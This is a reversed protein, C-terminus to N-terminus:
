PRGPVARAASTSLIRYGTQRPFTSRSKLWIQDWPFFLRGQTFNQPDGKVQDSAPGAMPVKPEPIPTAAAPEAIVPREEAVGAERAAKVRLAGDINGAQTLERQYQDLAQDRAARLPKVKEDRAAELKGLLDRYTAYFGLLKEPRVVPPAEAAIEAVTPVGQGSGLRDISRRWQLVEDLEGAKSAADQERQLAASIQGNLKEVAEAHPKTVEAEYRQHYAADIGAIRNTIADAPVAARGPMETATPRVSTVAEAPPSKTTEVPEIWAMRAVQKDAYVDLDIAGRITSLKEQLAKAGEQTDDAAWSTWTGDERLAAVIRGGGRIATIRPLDDRAEVRDSDGWDKVEGNETLGVFGNVVNDIEVFRDRDVLTKRVGTQNCFLITGDRRLFTVGCNSAVIKVVDGLAERTPQYTDPSEDPLINWIRIDGNKFKAAAFRHQADFLEVRELEGVRNRIHDSWTLLRGERNLAVNQSGILGEPPITTFPPDPRYREHGVVLDGNARVAQWPGSESSCAVYDKGEDPQKIPVVRGGDLDVGFARLRGSRIAPTANTIGTAGGPVPGLRKMPVSGEKAAADFFHGSEYTLDFKIENDEGADKWRFLLCYSQESHKLSYEPGAKTRIATASENFWISYPETKSEVRWESGGVHHAIEETETTFAPGPKTSFFTDDPLVFREVGEEFRGTVPGGSFRWEIENESLAKYEYFNDKGHLNHLVMKGPEPGFRFWEAANTARYYKKGSIRAFLDTNASSSTLDSGENVPMNRPVAGQRKMVVAGDGTNADFFYGIDYTQKFEVFNDSDVNQSRFLKRFPKGSDTLPYEEGSATRFSAASENFWISYPKDKSEVQWESGGVYHALEEAETAFALGPTTSFAVGTPLTVRNLDEDFRAVAQDGNSWRWEIENGSLAKCEYVIDKGELDRLVMQGPEAGFSLWNAANTARYYKKGAIRDFLTQSTPSSTLSTQLDGPEIWLVVGRNKSGDVTFALDLSADIGTQHERIAASLLAGPAEDAGAGKRFAWTGEKTRFASLAHGARIATAAGKGTIPKSNPHQYSGDSTLILVSDHNGSLATVTTGNPITTPQMGEVIDWWVLDGTKKLVAGKQGSAEIAVADRLDEPGPVFRDDPADKEFCVVVEGSKRLGLAFANGVKVDVFDNGAPVPQLRSAAGLSGDPKVWAELREWDFATAQIRAEMEGTIRKEGDFRLVEGDEAIVWWRGEGYNHSGVKVVPKEKWDEPIPLQIVKGSKQDYYFGRLIGARGTVRAPASGGTDGLQAGDVKLAYNTTKTALRQVRSFDESFSIPVKKGTTYAFEASRAGTITLVYPTKVSGDDNLYVIRDKSIRFNEESDDNLPEYEHETELWQDLSKLTPLDQTVPVIRLMAAAKKASVFAAVEHGESFEPLGQFEAGGDAMPRWFGQRDRFFVPGGYALDVAIEEIVARVGEMSFLKGSHSRVKGEQPVTWAGMVEVFPDGAPAEIRRYPYDRGWRHLAGDATVTMAGYRSASLSVVERLADEPVPWESHGKGWVTVSRDAHLALAIREGGGVADVVPRLRAPPAAAEGTVTLSGDRHILFFGSGRDSRILAVNKAPTAPRHADGQSFIVEGNQRLAAWIVAEGSATSSACVQVFDAHPEASKLFNATVSTGMAELRGPDRPQIPFVLPGVVPAPSENNEVVAGGGGEGGGGSVARWGVVGVALLLAVAIGSWLLVRHDRAARERRPVATSVSRSRTEAPEPLPVVEMPTLRIGDVDTRLDTASQYREAPDVEMARFVVDDLRVDLAKVKQSPPKVAGRPIEGTLMEYFMVGLSYIDARRDVTGDAALQEPAIYHPTGMAVGTMTLGLKETASLASEDAGEVLKALGFDGVKLIGKNNIFINAPKIDRHVFGEGHAYELADCIQSVANLAGEPTLGGSRILRHLDTGDVFEMVIYHHGSGTTGFDYIQVINPHNLRAMSKAERRFRAEFEPDYGLEPPLLKIAVPRELSTQVGQYVAGMGGRGLVGTVVYGSLM